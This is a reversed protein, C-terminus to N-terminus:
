TRDVFRQDQPDPWDRYLASRFDKVRRFVEAHLRETEGARASVVGFAAELQSLDVVELSICFEGLESPGFGFKRRRVRWAAIVGQEWLHHLFAQLSRSFLVESQDPALNCWIEYTNM